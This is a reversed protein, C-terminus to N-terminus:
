LLCTKQLTFLTITYYLFTKKFISIGRLSQPILMANVAHESLINSDPDERALSSVGNGGHSIYGSDSVAAGLNNILNSDSSVKLTCFKEDIASFSNNPQSSSSNNNYHSGSTASSATSQRRIYSSQHLESVVSDLLVPFPWSFDSHLKRLALVPQDLQAAHGSQKKLWAVMHFDLQAAFTGLDHLRAQSLLKHAHRQLIVDFFFEEAAQQQQSVEKLSTSSPKRARSGLAGGGAAMAAVTAVKKNAESSSRTLERHERPSHKTGATGLAGSSNAGQTASTSRGRPVQLTGLLL